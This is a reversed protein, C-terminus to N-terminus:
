SVWPFGEAVLPWVLYPTLTLSSSLDYREGTHDTPIKKLDGTVLPRGPMGVLVVLVYWSAHYVVM